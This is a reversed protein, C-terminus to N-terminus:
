EGGGGGGLPWCCPWVQETNPLKKTKKEEKM